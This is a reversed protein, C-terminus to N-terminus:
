PVIVDPRSSESGRLWQSQATHSGLRSNISRLVELSIRPLDLGPYLMKSNQINNSAFFVVESLRRLMENSAGATASEGLYSLLCRVSTRLQDHAIRLLERSDHSAKSTTSGPINSQSPTSGFSLM